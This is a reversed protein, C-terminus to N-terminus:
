RGAGPEPRHAVECRIAPELEPARDRVAREVVEGGHVAGESALPERHAREVIPEDRHGLQDGAREVAVEGDLLEGADEPPQEQNSHTNSESM